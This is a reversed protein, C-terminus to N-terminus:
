SFSFNVISEQYVVRVKQCLHSVIMTQDKNYVRIDYKPVWSANYVVYSVILEVEAKDKSSEVLITM